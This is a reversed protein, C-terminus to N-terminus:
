FTLGNEQGIGENPRWLEICFVSRIKIGIGNIAFTNFKHATAEFSFNLSM